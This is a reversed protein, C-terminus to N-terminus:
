PQPKPPEPAPEGPQITITVPKESIVRQTVTSYVLTASAVETRADKLWADGTFEVTGRKLDYDIRNARGQSVEDKRRQEFTAPAGTVAAIAIEGAAFRVRATDSALASEPMTIRVSGDFEWSSDKFDLGTAEAREATIEVEGQTITIAEFKLVGNQYDFDTKSAKLQIPLQARDQAGAGACAVALVLAAFLREPRSNAM